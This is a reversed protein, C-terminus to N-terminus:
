TNYMSCRFLETWNEEDYFQAFALVKHKVTRMVGYKGYEGYVWIHTSFYWSFHMRQVWVPYLRQFIAKEEIWKKEWKVWRKHLLGKERICLTNEVCRQINIRGLSFFLLLFAFVICQMHLRQIDGAASGYNSIISRNETEWCKLRLDFYIKVFNVGLEPPMMMSKTSLEITAYVQWRHRGLGTWMDLQIFFTSPLPKILAWDWRQSFQKEM